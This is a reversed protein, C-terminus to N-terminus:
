LGYDYSFSGHFFGDCYYDVDDDNNNPLSTNPLPLRGLLSDDEVVMTGMMDMMM